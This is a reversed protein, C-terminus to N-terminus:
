RVMRYSAPAVVSAIISGLHNILVPGASRGPLFITSISNYVAPNQYVKIAGAQFVLPWTEIEALMDVVGPINPAAWNRWLNDVVAYRARHYDPDFLWRDPPVNAPLHPTVRGTHAIPMQMDTVRADFTWALAPSAIILDDASLHANVYDIVRAADIPDILFSDIDTKFGGQIQNVVNLTSAAFPVSIIVILAGTLGPLRRQIVKEARSATWPIGYYVLSAMGLALYPLFPILYYYSLSFLATTRSLLVFPILCFALTLRRWSAPRLLLLGIVGPLLWIDQVALTTTNQWLTAIQQNLPVQNLRSLVFRLDFEFARPVTVLMFAAYVAFPLLALPVSWVLDRWQHFLVIIMLPVLLVFAWVDSVTGLGIALAAVALWRKRTQKQDAPASAYEWTGLVALLSLPALLNYSFGFRSYLVAPPYIALLLAAFLALKRQRSVRQVVFYLLAVTIVGLSATLLRLTTISVGNLHAIVALLVEFAPLRSFLLWSQDIALYQVRGALLHRAIDLHTGADTYWGPTTAVQACRLYAALGLSLALAGVELM